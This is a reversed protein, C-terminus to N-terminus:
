SGLARSRECNTGLITRLLDRGAGAADPEDEAGTLRVSSGRERLDARGALRTLYAAVAAAATLSSSCFEPISPSYAVLPLTRPPPATPPLSAPHTRSPQPRAGASRESVTAPESRLAENPLRAASTRAGLNQKQIAARASRPSGAMWETGARLRDAAFALLLGRGERGAELLLQVVADRRSM